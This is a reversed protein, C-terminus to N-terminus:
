RSVPDMVVEMINGQGFINKAFEQIDNTTVSLLLKDYDTRRDIGHTLLQSSVGLWYGADETQRGAWYNKIFNEKVKELKELSPGQETMKKIENYVIAILKEKKLPDPDTDFNIQFIYREKPHKGLDANVRVGYSGGEKERITELYVSNLIQATISILVQNKLSAAVEGTYGITITSQPTEMKKLFRKKVIGREPFQGHDVVQEKKKTPPLSGFWTEVLKRTSAENLNGNIIFTFDNANGFREKHLRIVKEYEVKELVGPDALSISRPHRNSMISTLTDQYVTKPQISRTKIKERESLKWSDFSETDKKFGTMKMYILQFLIGSNMITGKSNIAQFNKDLSLFVSARGDIGEFGKGGAAVNNYAIASPLDEDPVLSYGGPKFGYIYVKAEEYKTDKFWVKVGNSLTWITYGLPGANKETKIIKGPRPTVLSTLDNTKDIKVWPTLETNKAEEWVKLIEQKTPLPINKNGPYIIEFAMNRDQFYQKAYHNLTDITLSNLIEKTVKYNEEPTRYFEDKLFQQVYEHTYKYGEKTKRDFYEEENHTLNFNILTPAFENKYFGFRRARECEEFASKLAAPVNNDLTSVMLNFAPKSAAISYNGVIGMVEKFAANKKKAVDYFRQNLMNGIISNIISIKYFQRTWKGSQPVDDLKWYVKAYASKIEPDSAIAVIPQDNDPIQYYNRPAPDPPVPLDAFLKKLKSEVKAVDVDGVIIIGQLDPRYWKKYYDKLEQPKFNDIIDMSGIPLRNAYPTGAFLVPLIDNQQVRAYGSSRTRWEEHVVGREKDIEKEDLTLFGCWDHLVLLATDIIGERDVPIYSLKYITEDYSTSANINSGFKIGKKELESVLSNSPFNKTGNFAMHELFHALGRQNEEELVSGVKQVLYFDARSKPMQNNRIYYNLGNNLKGIRLNPDAKVPKSQSFLSNFFLFLIICITTRKMYINEGIM